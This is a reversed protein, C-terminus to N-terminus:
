EDARSREKYQVIGNSSLRVTEDIFEEKADVIQNGNSSPLYELCLAQLETPVQLMSSSPKKPRDNKEEISDLSSNPFVSKGDEALKKKKPSTEEEPWNEDDNEFDWHYPNSSRRYNESEFFKEEYLLTKEEKIDLAQIPESSAMSTAREKLLNATTELESFEPALKCGKAKLTLLLELINQSCSQDLIAKLKKINSPKSLALLFVKANHRTILKRLLNLAKKNQNPQNSSLHKVIIYVYQMIFKPNINKQGKPKSALKIIEFAAQKGTSHKQNFFNEVNKKAEEWTTLPKSHGKSIHIIQISSLAM